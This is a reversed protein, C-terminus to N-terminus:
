KMDGKEVIEGYVHSTFFFPINQIDTHLWRLGLASLVHPWIINRRSDPAMEYSQRLSSNDGSDPISSEVGTAKSLAPIGKALIRNRMTPSITASFMEDPDHEFVPDERLQQPTMANVGAATQWHSEFGLGAWGTGYLINRGKFVEQKHWTYQRVGIDWTLLSMDQPGLELVEDGSSYFNFM